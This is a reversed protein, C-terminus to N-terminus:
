ERRDGRHFHTLPLLFILSLDQPFWNQEKEWKGGPDQVKERLGGPSLPHAPPTSGSWFESGSPFSGM